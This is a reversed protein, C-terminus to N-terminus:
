EQGAGRGKVEGGSEKKKEGEMDLRLGFQARCEQLPLRDQPPFMRLANMSVRVQVHVRRKLRSKLLSDLLLDRCCIQLGGRLGALQEIPGPGRGKGRRAYKLGDGEEGGQVSRFGCRTLLVRLSSCSSFLATCDLAACTGSSLCVSQCVSQERVDTRCWKSHCSRLGLILTTSNRFVGSNMSRPGPGAVREYFKGEGRRM